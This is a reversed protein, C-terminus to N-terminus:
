RSTLAKVCAKLRQVPLDGLVIRRANCQCYVLGPCAANAGRGTCVHAGRVGVLPDPHYISVGAKVMRRYLRAAAHDGTGNSSCPAQERPKLRLSKSQACVAAFRAVEAWPTPPVGVHSRM